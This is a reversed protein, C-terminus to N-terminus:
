GIPLPGTHTTCEIKDNCRVMSYTPIYRVLSRNTYRYPDTFHVMNGLTRKHRRQFKRLPITSLPHTTTQRTTTKRPLIPVVKKKQNKISKIQELDSMKPGLSNKDQKGRGLSLLFSNQTQMKWANWKYDYLTCCKKRGNRTGQLQMVTVIFRETFLGCSSATLYSHM